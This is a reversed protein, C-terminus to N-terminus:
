RRHRVRRAAAAPHAAADRHILDRAFAILRDATAVDIGNGRKTTVQDIFAELVNREAGHKGQAHKTKAQGLKELLGNYAGASTILGEDWAREINATLSQADAQVKFRRTLTSTNGLADTATVVITHRGPALLFMDVAQGNSAPEGDFTVSDGALGSASDMTTYAISSLDDTDFVVEDPQPSTITIAPGQTDVVVTKSEAGSENGCRDIGKAEVVYSGDTGGALSANEPNSGSAAGWAPATGGSPVVRTYLSTASLPDYNDDAKAVVTGGSGIYTTGGSTTTTGAVGLTITPATPDTLNTAPDFTDQFARETPTTHWPVPEYFVQEFVQHRAVCDEWIRMGGTGYSHHVAPQPGAGDDDELYVSTTSWQHDGDLARMWGLMINNPVYWSPTQLPDNQNMYTSYLDGLGASNGAQAAKAKFFQNLGNEDLLGLMGMTQTNRLAAFGDIQFDRFDEAQGSGEDGDQDVQPSSTLDMAQDLLARVPLPFLRPDDIYEEPESMIRVVESAGLNGDGNRDLAAFAPAPLQKLDLGWTLLGATLDDAVDLAWDTIDEKVDDYLDCAPGLVSGFVPDNKLPGWLNGSCSFFFSSVASAIDSVFLVGNGVFDPYGMMSLMHGLVWDHVADVIRDVDPDAKGTYLEEAIVENVDVWAILGQKIDDIWADYYAQLASDIGWEFVNIPSDTPDPGCGDEVCVFHTHGFHQVATCDDASDDFCDQHQNDFRLEEAEPVLQEYREVFPDLIVHKGHARAFPSLLMTTAVFESPVDIQTAIHQEYGPRHKDMYGEAITHRIAIDDHSVDTFDPFVGGAIAPSNVLTHAWMDGNAHGIVFGATFAINKLRNNLAPTWDIPVVSELSWTDVPRWAQEWLYSLWEDSIAEDHGTGSRRDNGNRTDPHVFSQGFYTDPFADPGIVGARFAAPFSQIAQKLTANVPVTVAKAPDGSVDPITVTNGPGLEIGLPLEVGKQHMPPKWAMASSATALTILVLLLFSFATRRVHV